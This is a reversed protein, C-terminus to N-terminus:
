QRLHHLGTRRGLLDHEAPPLREPTAEPESLHLHLLSAPRNGRVPMGPM